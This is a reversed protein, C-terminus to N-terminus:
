SKKKTEYAFVEWIQFKQTVKSLRIESKSFKILFVLFFQIEEFKIIVVNNM